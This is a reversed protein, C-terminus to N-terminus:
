DPRKKQTAAKSKDGLISGGKAGEIDIKEVLSLDDGPTNKSDKEIADEKNEGIIIEQDRNVLNFDKAEKEGGYGDKNLDKMMNKSISQSVRLPDVKKPAKYQVNPIFYANKM